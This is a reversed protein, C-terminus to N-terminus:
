NCGATHQVKTKDNRCQNIIELGTDQLNSRKSQNQM